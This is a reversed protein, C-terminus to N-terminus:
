KLNPVDYYKWDSYISDHAYYVDLTSDRLFLRYVRTLEQKIKILKKDKDYYLTFPKYPYFVEEQEKKSGYWSMDYDHAFICKAKRITDYLEVSYAYTFPTKSKENKHQCGIFLLSIIFCYKM